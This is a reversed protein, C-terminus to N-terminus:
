CNGLTEIIHMTRHQRPDQLNYNRGPRLTAVEQLAAAGVTVHTAESM